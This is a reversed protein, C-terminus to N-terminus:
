LMISKQTSVYTSQHQNQPRQQPVPRHPSNAITSKFWSVLDIIIIVHDYSPVVNYLHANPPPKSWFWDFSSYNFRMAAIDPMGHDWRVGLPILVSVHSPTIEHLRLHSQSQPLHPSTIQSQRFAPALKTDLHKSEGRIVIEDTWLSSNSNIPQPKTITHISWPNFKFHIIQHHDHDHIMISSLSKITISLSSPDFQEVM